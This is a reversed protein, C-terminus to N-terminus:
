VIKGGGEKGSIGRLGNFSNQKVERAGEDWTNVCDAAGGTIGGLM